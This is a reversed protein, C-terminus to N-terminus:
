EGYLAGAQAASSMLEASEKKRVRVPLLLQKNM